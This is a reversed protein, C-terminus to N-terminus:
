RLQVPLAQGRPTPLHKLGWYVTVPIGKAHAKRVTDLTGRSKGDWFAVVLDAADVILQNRVLGAGAGQSWDAHFVHVPLDWQEAEDVAWTDVGRAGGSIVLPLERPFRQAETPVPQYALTGIFSRVKDEYPYDRSGVVAWKRGKTPDTIM